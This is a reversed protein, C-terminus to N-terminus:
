VSIRQLNDMVFSPEESQPPECFDM